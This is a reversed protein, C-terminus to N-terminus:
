CQPLKETNIGLILSFKANKQIFLPYKHQHVAYWTFDKQLMSNNHTFETKKESIGSTLTSQSVQQIWKNSTNKIVAIQM